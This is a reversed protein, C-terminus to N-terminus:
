ALVEYGPTLVRGPDHNEKAAALRAFEPGFHARWDHASM